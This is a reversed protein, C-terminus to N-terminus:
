YVRQRIRSVAVTKEAVKKGHSWHELQMQEAVFHILKRYRGGMRTPFLLVENSDPHASLFESIKQRIEDEEASTWDVTDHHDLVKERDGSRLLHDM